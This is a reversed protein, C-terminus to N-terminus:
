YKPIISVPSENIKPKIVSLRSVVLYILSLRVRSTIPVKQHEREGAMDITVRVASYDFIWLAKRDTLAAMRWRTLFVLHSITLVKQGAVFPGASTLDGMQAIDRLYFSVFTNDNMWSAAEMVQKLSYSQHFALSSDFARLEGVQFNTYTLHPLNEGKVALYAQKFVSRVWGSVTQKSIEGTNFWKTHVECVNSSAVRTM